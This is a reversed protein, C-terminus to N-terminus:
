SRPRRPAPAPGFGRTSQAAVQRFIRRIEEDLSLFSLELVSRKPHLIVDVGAPLEVVHRLVGSRLRRKIRNREHAKGLVKGVTLGVRAPAVEPKSGPQAKLINQEDQSHQACAQRAAFWSMSSSFQKRTLGYVRQYDAHKHLKHRRFASPQSPRAENWRGSDYARAKQGLAPANGNPKNTM